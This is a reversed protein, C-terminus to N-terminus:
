RYWWPNTAYGQVHKQSARERIQQPSAKLTWELDKDSMKQVNRQIVSTRAAQPNAARVKKVAEQQKKERRQAAISQGAAYKRPDSDKRTKDSLKLWGNWRQPTM